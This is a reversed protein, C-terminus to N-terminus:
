NSMILQHSLLLGAVLALGYLALGALLCATLLHRLLGAAYDARQQALEADNWPGRPVAAVARAYLTRDLWATTPSSSVYDPALGRLRNLRPNFYWLFFGAFGALQGALLLWFALGATPWAGGTTLLGAVTARVLLRGAHFGARLSNAPGDAAIRRANYGTEWRTFVM